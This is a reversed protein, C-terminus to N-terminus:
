KHTTTCSSGLNMNYSYSGSCSESIKEWYWNGNSDMHYFYVKCGCAAAGGYHTSDQQWSTYSASCTASGNGQKKELPPYCTSGYCIVNCSGPWIDIYLLNHGICMNSTSNTTWKASYQSTGSSKSCSVNWTLKGNCNTSTCSSKCYVSSGNYKYHYFGSYDACCKDAITKNSTLVGADEWEKCCAESIKSSSPGSGCDPCYNSNNCFGGNFSNGWKPDGKCCKCCDKKEADTLSGKGTSYNACKSGLRAYCCSFKYYNPSSSNGCCYSRSSNDSCCNNKLTSDSPESSCCVSQGTSSKRFTSDGCCTTKYSGSLYGWSYLSSCCSSLTPQGGGQFRWAKCSDSSGCTFGASSYYYDACKNKEGGFSCSGGYYSPNYWWVGNSKVYDCCGYSGPAFNWSSGYYTRCCYSKWTSNGSGGSVLGYSNNCCYAASNTTYKYSSYVGTSYTGSKYCPAKCEEMYTGLYSSYGDERGSLSQCCTSGSGAFLQGQESTGRIKACCAQRISGSLSNINGNKCCANKWTSTNWNNSMMTSDLCCSPLNWVSSSKSARAACTCQNTSYYNCCYHDSATTITSGDCCHTTTGGGLASGNTSNSCCSAARFQDRTLGGPNSSACCQSKWHANTYSAKTEKCCAASLSLSKSLRKSCTCQNTSYNDCCYDNNASTVTSGDCCHTIYGGGVRALGTSSNSCCSANRFEDRSM